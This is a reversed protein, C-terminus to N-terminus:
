VSRNGSVTIHRYPGANELLDGSAQRNWLFGAIAGGPTAEFMNNTIAAAGAGEAVSVAIGVPAKRVMNGIATVNRLYPGWGILMGWKPVNEVVNGSIVADAEASIGTGFGNEAAYPGDAVLNRVINNSITALRGGENFNVVAIGNAAGDVINGSIVAGEFGFEAYIAMEGLNLCQNGTVLVNSSANARMASFACDSVHNGSVLAGDARFLNIGNGYQGTGGSRARIREIRNSQVMTNDAGKTWRHVLIGGDGCDSVTNGTISLGTSEVAYLGYSLAGSLRSREIRGGCREMQVGSRRSGAIDCNDISVNKVARLHVLAPADDALWGNAGDISLNSLTITDVTDARFLFGGGDYLIRSAGPVGTVHAGAPLTINSVRYTGPPLFVPVRAEAARDIISQLTRSQSGTAEPAMGLKGADLSGRLDVPTIVAREPAAFPRGAAATATMGALLGLTRRRSIM